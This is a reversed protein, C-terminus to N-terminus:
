LVVKKMDPHVQPIVMKHVIIGDGAVAKCAANVATKVAGVEGTLTFYSKGGIGMAIRIEILSVDATKRAADAAVICAAVSMTEVSGLSEIESVDTIGRIARIVETHVNPITLTDVLFEGAMDIGKDMSSAVDSLTGTVLIIFKGPCVPHAEVLEVGSMKLMADAVEFGSSISCLEVLGIAAEM